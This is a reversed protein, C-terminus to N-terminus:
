LCCHQRAQYKRKEKMGFLIYKITSQWLIKVQDWQTKHQKTAHNSVQNRARNGYNAKKWTQVARSSLPFHICLKHPKPVEACALRYNDLFNTNPKLQRSGHQHFLSSFRQLKIEWVKNRACAHNQVLPHILMHVLSFVALMASLLTKKQKMFSPFLLKLDFTQIFFHKKKKRDPRTKSFHKTLIFITAQENNFVYQLSLFCQLLILRDCESIQQNDYNGNLTQLYTQLPQKIGCCGM